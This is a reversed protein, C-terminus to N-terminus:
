LLLSNIGKFIGTFGLKDQTWIFDPRESGIWQGGTVENQNNLNLRYKYTREGNFDFSTGLLSGYQPEIIKSYYVTTHVTVSSGTRKKVVAKYSSLTYNWVEKFRDLDAIFGHNNLGILNTLILHFSGANTDSCSNHRWVLPTSQSFFCRKGIQRVNTNKNQAYQFSLLAKIDSSFFSVTVGDKNIITKGTPEGHNLSAAALGHCIGNWDSAGFNTLKGALRSVPYDYRAQSIDYKEAPSLSNIEYQSLKVIEEKNPQFYKNEVSATTWRYNISGKNHPWFYGPWLKDKGDVSGSLPLSFFDLELKVGFNNPNNAGNWGFAHFSLSFVLISIFLNLKKM